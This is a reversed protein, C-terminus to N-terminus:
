RATIVFYLFTIPYFLNIHFYNFYYCVVHKRKLKELSLPPNSFMAKCQIISEPSPHTGSGLHAVVDKLKIQLNPDQVKHVQSQM